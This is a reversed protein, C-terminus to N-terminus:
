LDLLTHQPIIQKCIQQATTVKPQLYPLNLAQLVVQFVFILAKCNQNINHTGRLM